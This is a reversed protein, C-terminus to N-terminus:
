QSNEQLIKRKYWERRSKRCCIRCNIRGNKYYTNDETFEHGYKCHTKFKDFKQHCSMCLRIWDEPEKLYRLSINAWHYIKIEVTGCDQCGSPTGLTREVWYHIKRYQNTGSKM